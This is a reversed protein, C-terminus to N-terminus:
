MSSAYGNAHTQRASRQGNARKAGWRVERVYTFFLIMIFFLMM